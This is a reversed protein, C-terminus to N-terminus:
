KCRASDPASDLEEFVELTICCDLGCYLQHVLPEGLENLKSRTLENTQILMRESAESRRRLWIQQIENWQCKRWIFLHAAVDHEVAYRLASGLTFFDRTPTWNDTVTVCYKRLRM